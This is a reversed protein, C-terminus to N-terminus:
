TTLMGAEYKPTESKLDRRPSRRDQSLNKHKKETEGSLYQMLVSLLVVDEEKWMKEM